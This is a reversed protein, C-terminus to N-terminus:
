FSHTYRIMVNVGPADIGSGMTRYNRDFINELIATVSSQEGLRFGGRINLTAYGPHRTYLPVRASLDSGLVRRLVQSLNEGTPVLVGDRVLGRAVAGNNFFNTIEDRTRIGGIRAQQLDNDSLRTQAGALSSYTEVWYRKGSPQWRLSVFGNLPPIGNELAPPAGTETETGRVYFARANFDLSRTLRLLTESEIGSLRIHAANARVFVPANSLATYIAGSADQRVVQQGGVASGAAGQPLLLVRREIFNTLETNFVSLTGEFRRARFKLGAEYNYLTEAKLQRVPRPDGQVPRSIDIRGIRGGLREGEEPTVEFGIGSIGISGYDNVNPARFGRSANATLNLHKNLSLVLGTNFTV